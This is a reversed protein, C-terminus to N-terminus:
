VWSSAGRMQLKSFARIDLMRDNIAQAEGEYLAAYYGAQEMDKVFAFALNLFASYVIGEHWKSAYNENGSDTLATLTTRYTVNLTINTNPNDNLTYPAIKIREGVSTYFRPNGSQGITANVQELSAPQVQTELLGDAYTIAIVEQLDSVAEFPNETPKVEATLLQRNMQLDNLLRQRVIPEWTAFLSDPLTVTSKKTVARVHNRIEALTAM